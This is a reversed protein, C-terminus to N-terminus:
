AVANVNPLELEVILGGEAANCARASGGHLRVVADTIALGIGTGGRDRERAGEVRYFPRFLNALESEPVGPGHDRVSILARSLGHPQQGCKLDVEVSSRPATYRIANRVVNEVASRLLEPSGYVTCDAAANVVV